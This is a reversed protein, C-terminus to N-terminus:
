LVSCKGERMRGIVCLVLPAGMARIADSVPRRLRALYNDDNLLGKFHGHLKNSGVIILTLLSGLEHIADVALQGIRELITPTESQIPM